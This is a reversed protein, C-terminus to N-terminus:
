IQNNNEDEEGKLEAFENEGNGCRPCFKFFPNSILSYDWLAKCHPCRGYGKIDTPYIWKGRRQVSPLENIANDILLPVVDCSISEHIDPHCIGHEYLWKEFEEDSMNGFVKKEPQASPLEELVEYVVDSDILGHDSGYGDIVTYRVAEIAGQRDILDSM